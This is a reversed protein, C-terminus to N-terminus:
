LLFPCCFFKSLRNYFSVQSPYILFLLDTELVNEKPPKELFFYGFSVKLFNALKELQKFTPKEIGDIWKEIKPYKNLIEEEEKQSEKIAWLWVDKEVDIRLASM